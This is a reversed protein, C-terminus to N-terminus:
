SYAVLLANEEVSEHRHRPFDQTPMSFLRRSEINPSMCLFAAAPRLLSSTYVAVDRLRHVAFVQM